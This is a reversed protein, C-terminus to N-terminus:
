RDGDCANRIANRAATTAKVGDDFWDRFACDELDHVSLGTQYQVVQDVQNMWQQFGQGMRTVERTM